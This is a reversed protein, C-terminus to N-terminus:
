LGNVLEKIRTRVELLESDMKAREEAIYKEITSTDTIPMRVNFDLRYNDYIAYWNNDVVVKELLEKDRLLFEYRKILEKLEKM